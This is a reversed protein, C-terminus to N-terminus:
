WYGQLGCGLKRSTHSRVDKPLPRVALWATRSRWKEALDDERSRSTELIRNTRGLEQDQHQDVRGDQLCDGGRDVGLRFDRRGEQEGKGGSTMMGSYADRWFALIVVAWVRFSPLRRWM